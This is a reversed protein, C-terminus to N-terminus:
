ARACRGPASRWSTSGSCTWRARRSWRGRSCSRAGPGRLRRAAQRAARRDHRRAQAGVGRTVNRSLTASRRLRGRQVARGGRDARAAQVDQVHRGRPRPAGLPRVRGGHRRDPGTRAPAPGTRRGPRAPRRAALRATLRGAGLPLSVAADPEEDIGYAVELSGGGIDLLLLKGPRGATGAAPRSSPSGPRRRAPCCGCSSAPRTASAPSSTTPTAPRACPPPRSPCCNRSARTRPPWCRRASRPSWGTSARPDSRATRTSSNPSGCSPRTRTRPCRRPVPTRTWWWCIFRTRGWM